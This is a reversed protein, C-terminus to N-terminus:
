HIIAGSAKATMGTQAAAGTITYAGQVYGSPLYGATTNNNV